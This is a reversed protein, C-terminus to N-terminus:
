MFDLFYKQFHVVLERMLRCIMKETAQVGKEVEKTLDVENELSSFPKPCYERCDGPAQHASDPSSVGVNFNVNVFEM